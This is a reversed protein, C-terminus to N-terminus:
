EGGKGPLAERERERNEKRPIKKPTMERTMPRSPTLFFFYFIAPPLSLLTKHVRFLHSHLCDCAPKTAGERWRRAVPVTRRDFTENREDNDLYFCSAFIHGETRSASTFTFCIFYPMQPYPGSLFFFLFSARCFCSQTDKLKTVPPTTICDKTLLSLFRTEKGLTGHKWAEESDLDGIVTHCSTQCCHFGTRHDERM